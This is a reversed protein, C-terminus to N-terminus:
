FFLRDGEGKFGQYPCKRKLSCQEFLVGVPEIEMEIRVVWFREVILLEGVVFSEGGRRCLLDFSTIFGIWSSYM